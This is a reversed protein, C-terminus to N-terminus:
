VVEFGHCARCFAAIEGLAKRTAGYNRAVDEEDFEGRAEDTVTGDLLLREGSGMRSVVEGVKEGIARAAAEDVTVETGNYGMLALREADVLGLSKVFALVPRWTWADVLVHREEDELDVLAFDM